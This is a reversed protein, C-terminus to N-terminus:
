GIQELSKFDAVMGAIMNNIWLQAEHPGVGVVGVLESPPQPIALHKPKWLHLCYRHNKVYQSLPPHLQMVSEEEDWFLDKIFCMELWNPSRSRDTSVSVQEWGTQEGDVSIAQLKCGCPSQLVFRGNLGSDPGGYNTVRGLELREPLHARM